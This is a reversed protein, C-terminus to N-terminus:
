SKATRPTNTEDRLQALERKVRKLEDQAKLMDDAINLSVLVALQASPLRTALSFETMKQDVYAAVRRVHEEPDYSTMTYDKGAIHVTTRIKEM